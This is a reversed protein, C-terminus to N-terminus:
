GTEPAPQIFHKAPKPALVYDAPWTALCSFFNIHSTPENTIVLLYSYSNCILKKNLFLVRMDVNNPSLSSRHCNVFLGHLLTSSEKLM